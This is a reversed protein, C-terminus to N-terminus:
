VTAGRQRIIEAPTRVILSLDLALSWSRVYVIDMDLAEAFSAHARATVQWLGTIGPPASFREFHHAAFYETEYPLCPRPGVLSMTGQLVNILQPLEDLSTKRLWRGTRTVDVRRDLKYLAGVAQGHDANMTQAIYAHHVSEDADVTMTRFKLMTFERMDAGLRTQRYFVPGPSDRPIRWAAWLFLPTAIILGVSAGVLDIARKVRSAAVSRCRPSISVLPMGEVSTLTAGPGVLEFLRSVVDVHVNLGALPRLQALTDHDDQTSFAVIVRDVALERVIPVLDDIVGVIPVDAVDARRQRPRADVFGAPKIGYEPHRLLKRAILQGVDGAGVILASQSFEDRRRSLARKAVRRSALFAVASVSLVLLGNPDPDGPRSAFARLFIAGAGIVALLGLAPAHAGAEATRRTPRYLGSVRAGLLWSACGVAVLALWGTQRAADFGMRSALMYPVLLAVILALTDSTFLLRVRTAASTSPRIPPRRDVEHSTQSGPATRGPEPAVDLM